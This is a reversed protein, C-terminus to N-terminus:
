RALISHVGNSEIPIASIIATKSGPFFSFREPQVTKQFSLEYNRHNPTRRCAGACLQAPFVPYHEFRGGFFLGFDAGNALISFRLSACYDPLPHDVVCLCGDAIRSSCGTLTFPRLHEEGM